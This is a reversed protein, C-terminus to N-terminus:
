RDANSDRDQHVASAKIGMCRVVQRLARAGCGVCGRGGVAGGGERRCIVVVRCAARSSAGVRSSWAETRAEHVGRVDPHRSPEGWQSAGAAGFRCAPAARYLGTRAVLIAAIATGVSDPQRLLLASRRANGLRFANGVVGPRPAGDKTSPEPSVIWVRAKSRTLGGVPNSDIM